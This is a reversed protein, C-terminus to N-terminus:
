APGETPAVGSFISLRYGDPDRFWAHRAGWAQDEPPGDFPIGMTSLEDFSVDVDDVEIVIEIGPAGVEDLQGEEIGLHFGTAGGVRLYGPTEMLLDLGLAEVYFRKSRELDAVYVFLHHFRSGTPVTPM